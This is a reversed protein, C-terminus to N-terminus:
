KYKEVLQEYGGVYTEDYWIQPVTKFGAYKVLNLVWPFEYIDVYVYDKNLTQKIFEVAKVCHPCSKKGLIYFM